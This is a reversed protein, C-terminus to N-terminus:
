RPRHRQRASRLWGQAMSVEFLGDPHTHVRGGLVQALMQCGLCIGLFPTQSELVTPMWDLERRIFDFKDHEYASQPGGFIVV